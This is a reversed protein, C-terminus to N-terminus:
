LLSALHNTLQIFTLIASKFLQPNGQLLEQFIVGLVIMPDRASTSPNGIYQGSTAILYSM